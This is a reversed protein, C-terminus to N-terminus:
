EVNGQEGDCDFGSTRVAGIGASAGTILVTKGVLRSANFVSMERVASSTTTPTHVRSFCHIPAITLSKQLSGPRAGRAPAPALTGNGHFVRLLAPTRVTRLYSRIIM